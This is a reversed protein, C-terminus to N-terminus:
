VASPVRQLQMFLEARLAVGGFAAPRKRMFFLQLPAHVLTCAGKGNLTDFFGKQCAEFAFRNMKFLAHEWM